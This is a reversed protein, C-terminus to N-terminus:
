KKSLQQKFYQQKLSRFENFGNEQDNKYGASILLKGNPIKIAWARLDQFKIEYEKILSGHPTVDKFKEKAVSQLNAIRDMVALLGRFSSKYKGELSTEFLDFVGRIEADESNLEARDIEAQIKLINEQSGVVVL